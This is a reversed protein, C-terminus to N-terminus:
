DDKAANDGIYDAPNITINSVDLEEIIVKYGNGDPEITTKTGGEPLRKNLKLATELYKHRVNHDPMQTLEQIVERIKEVTQDKGVASKIAIILDPTVSGIPRTAELGEGIKIALNIDDVGVIRLIESFHGSKEIDRKYKSAMKRASDRNKVNFASVYADTESGGERMIKAYERLWVRHRETIKIETNAINM